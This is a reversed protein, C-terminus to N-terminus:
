LAASRWATPARCIPLAFSYRFHKLTQEAPASPHRWSQVLALCITVVLPFGEPVISVALVVASFVSFLPTSLRYKAPMSLQATQGSIILMQFWPPENPREPDRYGARWLRSSLM